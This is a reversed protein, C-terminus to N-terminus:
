VNIAGLATLTSRQAPTLGIAGTITMGEYPRDVSLIKLCAGTKSDWIRISGDESCSTIIGGKHNFTVMWVIQQHGTLTQLCAGTLGDWLKVQCDESGSALTAGDPSFAISRVRHTHAQWTRVCAGTQLNWLKITRDGSGSALWKGDPSYAVSLVWDTHGQLTQLCDGTNVDWIKVSHDDSGSAITRGQPSMAVSKVRQRHGVLTKLCEGSRVDWLKITKDGSGSALLHGMGSPLSLDIPSFAITQVWDRHGWFTKLWESTHANWLQITHDDSGSAFWKGDPSFAVSTVVDSHGAQIKICQGTEIDWLRIRQDKSGSALRRDDPSFAISTIWNSYSEITTLCQSSQIEWIRVTQDDGSSVLTRGDPSFNVLWVRYTHGQFIKLCQRTTVDWVRITKDESGTALFQGDASFAVAWIKTKEDLLTGVCEGTQVNWFKVRQEDSGTVLTTGDPSLATSLMWNVHTTITQTCEGSPLQWFRITQDDSTSILTQQDPCFIVTLIRDRHGQLTQICQWTSLDWLRIVPDNSGSALQQGNPSFAITQISSTHGQLTKLCQGSQGDWLRITQDISGSALIKGDPSFAVCRVWASHGELIAIQRQDAIHWLLLNRDIGIALLTGDPSFAVALIDGLTQTFVSKTLDAHAFNVGHLNVGQLYVQWVTLHSFDYGSLNVDLQSFLNLLNGAAYGPLQSPRAKLISLTQDLQQKVAVQNGLHMQLQALVPKLILRAQTNRLYDKTQAKSLAHSDFLAFNGQMLERSIHEILRETVYEMVVPQQTFMAIKGTLPSIMKEILSRQQLSELSELLARPAAPSVLDERLTSLSAWEREIALWYMMQQELVTLRNFQQELLDSIDGFVVSGQELFQAVDGDFLEQITTSAIKLALPNGSYYDILTRTHTELSSFGKEKLIAQANEPDLGALRLSRIPLTKGEKANLGGPKERSTLVLCSQHRSEGVSQFFQAYDEYGERYSGARDGTCLISEVNDLVLLCRSHQLHEVLRTMRRGIAEPLEGEGQSSLVGLWDALLEPLPPANRLSRWIVFAFAAKVREALKISLATKGIGGMGILTILRCRDDGIWRELIELEKSRGYFVSVDMAEGWDQKGNNSSLTPTDPQPNLPLVPASQPSAPPAIHYLPLPDQLGKLQREGLYDASVPLHAKVVDYVSQSLCIGGPSAQTQLRAALNVRSGMVDNDNYVVDGLDIGIRHQLIETAPLAAATEALTQQISIACLVAQEASNFYLLLGDGLSKLVRGAFQQCLTQMQQLDRQVLTLTHHENAAMQPTFSVVDTFVIAALTRQSLPDNLEANLDAIADCDLSLKECLELFTARDVPKGTLFNSITALSLGSEEALARQSSFGSRRVALKVTNICAPRV